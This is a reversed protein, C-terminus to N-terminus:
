FNLTNMTKPYDIATINFQTYLVLRLSEPKDCEVVSYNAPEGQKTFFTKPDWSRPAL